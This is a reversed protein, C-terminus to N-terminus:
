QLTEIVLTNRLARQNQLEAYEREFDKGNSKLHLIVQKLREIEQDKELRLEHLFAFHTINRRAEPRLLQLRETFQDM